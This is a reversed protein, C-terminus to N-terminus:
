CNYDNAELWKFCYESVHIAIYTADEIGKEKHM